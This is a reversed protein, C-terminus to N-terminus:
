IQDTGFFAAAVAEREANPENVPQAAQAPDPIPKQVPAAGPEGRFAALADLNATLTAEDDGKVSAALDRSIGRDYALQDRLRAFQEDALSKEGATIADAHTQIQTNLATVQTTLQDRETEAAQQATEAQQARQRLGKNEERLTSIVSLADDLTEIPQKTPEPSM